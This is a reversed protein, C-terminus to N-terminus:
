PTILCIHELVIKLSVGRQNLYKKAEIIEKLAFTQDKNLKSALDGLKFIKSELNNLFNIASAKDKDDIMPKIIKLRDGKNAKLFKEVEFKNESYNDEALIILRSKLTPLLSESNSTVLIFHTGLSPEELIKLLANQAEPTIFDFALVFFKKGDGMSTKSQLEKLLRSDDIGLTEFEKFWFDPNGQTKINLDKELSELLNKVIVIREGRILYAHHLISGEKFTRCFIEKYM